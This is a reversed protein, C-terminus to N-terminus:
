HKNSEKILTEFQKKKIMEHEILKKIIWQRARANKKIASFVILVVKKIETRFNNLEQHKTRKFICAGPSASAIM